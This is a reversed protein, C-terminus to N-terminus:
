PLTQSDMMRRKVNSTRREANERLTASSKTIAHERDRTTRLVKEALAGFAARPAGM